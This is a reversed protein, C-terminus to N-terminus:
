HLLRQAWEARGYWGRIKKGLVYFPIALLAIVVCASGLSGFVVLPGSADLWGILPAIGAFVVLAAIMNLSSFAQASHNPLCDVIYSITIQIGAVSGLSVLSLWILVWVLPLGKDVSVGTGVLGVASIPTTLILLVLRFEPEAVGRRTGNTRAMFRVSADSMWGAIPGGIIAAGFLPLNTLGIQSPTLNYPPAGLIVAIVTSGGALLVLFLSNLLASYAVIPCSILGLPKITSIWFGKDTMRGRFLALQERYSGKAPLNIGAKFDENDESTISTTEVSRPGRPPARNFYASELVLFYSAPVLAAFVMATFAFVASIGFVDTIYGAIIQGLQGGANLSLNWVSIAMGRQHVFFVDAITATVLTFLPASFVGAVTRAAVLLPFNYALYGLLNTIALILISIVYFPRRGWIDAGSVVVLAAISTWFTPATIILSSVTAEDTNFKEILPELGPTVMTTMANTVSSGFAIVFLHSLKWARSWNLPDNPDDSPQPQLVINGRKKLGTGQDFIKEEDDNKDELLVTGTPFVTKPDEIVGWGM